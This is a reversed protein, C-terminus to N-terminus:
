KGLEFISKIDRNLKKSSINIALEETASITAIISLLFITITTGFIFYLIPFCFLLIGTLKNAYTHLFTLAKYKIFGILVSSLRIISIVSICVLCWTPINLIPLYILLMICIFILDAVSDLTAGLNTATKKTRAIYGDLIDTTGCIAYIVFFPASQPEVFLLSISLFIRSATIVNPLNFSNIKAM